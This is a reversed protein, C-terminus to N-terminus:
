DDYFSDEYAYIARRVAKYSAIYNDISFAAGAAAGFGGLFFGCLVYLFWWGAMDYEGATLATITIMFILLSVWLLVALTGGALFVKAIKHNARVEDLERLARRQAKTVPSTNM